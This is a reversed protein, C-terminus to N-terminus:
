AGVSDFHEKGALHYAWDAPSWRLIVSLADISQRAYGLNWHDEKYYEARRILGEEPNATPVIYGFLPEHFLGFGYFTEDPHAAQVEKFAARSADLLLTQFHDFDLGADVM